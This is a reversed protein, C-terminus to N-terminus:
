FHRIRNGIVFALLGALGIGIFAQLGVLLRSLTAARATLGDSETTTITNVSFVFNDILSHIREGNDDVVSGTSWYILAFAIVVILLTGLTRTISEGYGCVLEVMWHGIWKLTHLGTQLTREPLPAEAFGFYIPAQRPNHTMRELQRERFHAQSADAYFGISQWNAKLKRYTGLARDTRRQWTLTVPREYEETLRQEYRTAEAADEELLGAGFQKLTVETSHFITKYVGVARLDAKLLNAETFDAYYFDARYAYAKDLEAGVFITRRADVGELNSKRLRARTFNAFCLVAGAFNCGNLIADTFDAGQMTNYNGFCLGSLDLGSLNLERFSYTSLDIQRREPNTLLNELEPRMLKPRKSTHLNLARAYKVINLMGYHQEVDRCLHDIFTSVAFRYQGSKPQWVTDQLSSVKEYLQLLRIIPPKQWVQQREEEGSAYTMDKVMRVVQVADLPLAYRGLIEAVTTQLVEPTITTSDFIDHVALVVAGHNRTSEPLLPEM